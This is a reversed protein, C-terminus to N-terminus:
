VTEEDRELFWKSEYAPPVTGNVGHQFLEEETSPVTPRFKEVWHYGKKAPRETM